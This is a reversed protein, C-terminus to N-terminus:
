TTLSIIDGVTLYTYMVLREADEKSLSKHVGKSSTANLADLRDGLFKLHSGVIMEFKESSNKSEVFAILRNIFADETLKVQSQTISPPFLADALEKLLRRCSNAANSWDKENSSSLNDYASVLEKIGDPCIKSLYEDVRSRTREFITETINGFKLDYYGDLIYRYVSAKISELLSVWKAISTRLGARELFNSNSASVHQYPNASSISVSADGSVRLTEKAAEIEIEIRGVSELQMHSKMLKTNVDYQQYHRGSRAGMQWQDQPVGTPESKYGSFEYGLWQTADTDGRIRAFRLVKSVVKSLPLEGMEINRLVESALELLEKNKAKVM